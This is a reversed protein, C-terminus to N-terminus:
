SEFRFVMCIADGPCLNKFEESELIDSPVVAQDVKEFGNRAFFREATETLLYLSEVKKNKATKLLYGLLSSGVGRNQGNNLVAMSRVLANQGYFELAGIGVLKTSTGQGIFFQKALDIDSHPLKSNRLIEVVTDQYSLDLEIIPDAKFENNEM